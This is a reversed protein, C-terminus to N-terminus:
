AHALELIYQRTVNWGFPEAVHKYHREFNQAWPDTDALAAGLM